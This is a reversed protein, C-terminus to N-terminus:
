TQGSGRKTFHNNKDITTAAVNFPMTHCPLFTRKRVKEADERSLTREDEDDRLRRFALALM